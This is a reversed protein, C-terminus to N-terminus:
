GTVGYAPGVDVPSCTRTSLTRIRRLGKFRSRNTGAFPTMKLDMEM